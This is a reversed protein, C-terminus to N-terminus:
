RALGQRRGQEVCLQPDIRRIFRELADPLTKALRGAAEATTEARGKVFRGYGRFALNRARRTEDVDAFIEPPLITGRGDVDAFAQDVLAEHWNGVDHPVPEEIIKLIRKLGTELSTHGSQVAHMFANAQIYDAIPNDGAEGNHIIEAMQFHHAADRFDDEVLVWKASTM